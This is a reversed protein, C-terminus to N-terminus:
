LVQQGDSTVSKLQEEAKTVVEPPLTAYSLFPAQAQGDHLSWWLFNAVARRKAVEPAEKRVLAYSFGVIPYSADGEADVISIRLDPPMRAAANAAAATTSDLSPTVFQGGRNRIAASNLRLARVHSLVLYGIAGRTRQVRPAVGENGPEAVGVPWKVKQGAGVRQAWVPSTKTLFDTFVQTTGSGDKRYVVRVEEDPLTQDPNLGSIRPDNWRTIVGLFLDALVDSTLRLGDAVGPVNYVVAVAGLTIPVHLVDGAQSLQDDSMPADSAGFDALDMMVAEIGRTSGVSSYTVKAGTESGYRNVWREYLPAPFTAGVGAVPPLDRHQGKDCGLTSLAGLVAVALGAAVFWSSKARAM